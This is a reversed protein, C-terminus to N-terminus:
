EVGDDSGRAISFKKGWEPLGNVMRCRRHMPVVIGTDRGRHVLVARDFRREWMPKRADAFEELMLRIPEDAGIVNWDLPGIPSRLKGNGEEDFFFAARILIARADYISRLAWWGELSPCVLTTEKQAALCLMEWNKAACELLADSCSGRLVYAISRMGQEDLGDITVYFSGDWPLDSRRPRDEHFGLLPYRGSPTSSVHRQDVFWYRSCTPRQLDFRYRVVCVGSEAQVFAYGQRTCCEARTYRDKVTRSPFQLRGVEGPFPLLVCEEPQLYPVEVFRMDETSIENSMKERWQAGRVPIKGSAVEDGVDTGRVSADNLAGYLVSLRALSPHTSARIPALFPPSIM